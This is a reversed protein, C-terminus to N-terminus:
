SRGIDSRESPRLSPLRDHPSLRITSFCGPMCCETNRADYCTRRPLYLSNDAILCDGGNTRRFPTLCLKGSWGSVGIGKPSQRGQKEKTGRWVKEQYWLGKCTCKIVIAKEGIWKQLLKTGGRLSTWEIKNKWTGGTVEHGVAEDNTSDKEAM